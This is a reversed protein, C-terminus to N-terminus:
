SSRPVTENTQRAESYRRLAERSGRQVVDRYMALRAAEARQAIYRQVGEAFESRQAAASLLAPQGALAALEAHAQDGVFRGFLMAADAGPAEALYGVVEGFLGDGASAELLRARQAADLDDILQPRRVVLALMRAGLRTRDSPATTRSTSREPVAGGLQRELAAHEIRGLRGIDRLLMTRLAGEPLRQVHPKAHDWLMAQGDVRDLDLGAQLHDLFYEGIPTAAALLKEVHQRGRRRVVTDPDEGEPLFVFRMQRGASLAPFAADVAKWAANRGAEDGDFCCVVQETFRFLKEFHAQGIATGLTAVADVIGHQALAVVDMYGEVVVVQGLKRRARRAEFLGYLERGKKFVDTEPSNIYKPEGARFVRGGFGIVRGRIDRIPFMIRERFRDYTRGGDSRALLGAAALRDEGFSALATKLGDWGSPALGIGFDRAAEDTIGRGELYAAAHEADAADQLQARFWAAAAELAGYLGPDIERGTGQEGPVELGLMAALADVAEPYSLGDQEMLFGLATGHAGCGFCHYHGDSYVHFSPTKEDHFPCLGLHNAGAKRLSVRAGVVDVIDVREVLGNIFSQPIRGAVPTLEAAKRM